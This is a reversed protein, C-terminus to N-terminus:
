LYKKAKEIQEIIMKYSTGGESVKKEVSLNIDLINFIDNDFKSSYKQWQEISLDKSRFLM